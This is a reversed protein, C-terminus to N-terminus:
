SWVTLSLLTIKNQAVTLVILKSNFSCQELFEVYKVILTCNFLRSNWVFSMSELQILITCQISLFFYTILQANHDIKLLCGLKKCIYFNKAYVSKDYRYINSETEPKCQDSRYRTLYVTIIISSDPWVNSWLWQLRKYKRKKLIICVKNKM